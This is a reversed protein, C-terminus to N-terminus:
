KKVDKWIRKNVFYLLVAMIGLFLLVRIGLQHRTELNPEAAWHLFSTVDYAMQELTADTGDAYSVMDASLPPAMAIQHGAFYKNYNMGAGMKMDHPAEGYGQLLHYLYNPGGVRAKTILSLDPPLAGNNSARAAKDNAFPSVFRDSPKAAREFMDGEDNPGDTVTYEAAIAKVEDETFGLDVLNRYSVLKLSHCAACVEKYVQFGRQLAGRDFTGTPPSFSFEKEPLHIDGGSAYAPLGFGALVLGLVIVGVGRKKVSMLVNFLVIAIIGYLADNWLWVVVISFVVVLAIAALLMVWSILKANDKLFKVLRNYLSKLFQM